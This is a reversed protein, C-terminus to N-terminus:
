APKSGPDDPIAPMTRPAPVGGASPVGGAPPLDPKDRKELAAILKRQRRAIRRWKLSAAWGAMGGAVVGTFIAIILIAYLPGEIEFPLPDLSVVVRDRNAVALLVALAAAGAIIFRSILKM